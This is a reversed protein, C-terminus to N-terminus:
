VNDPLRFNGIHGSFCVAKQPITGGNKAGVPRDLRDAASVVNAILVFGARGGAEDEM